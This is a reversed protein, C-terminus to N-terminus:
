CHKQFFCLIKERTQAVCAALPLGARQGVTRSARQDPTRLAPCCVLEGPPTSGKLFKNEEKEDTALLQFNALGCSNEISLEDPREAEQLYKTAFNAARGLSIQFPLLLATWKREKQDTEPRAPFQAVSYELFGLSRILQVISFTAAICFKLELCSVLFFLLFKQFSRRWRPSSTHQGAIRVGLWRVQLDTPRFAPGGVPLKHQEFALLFNKTKSSSSM